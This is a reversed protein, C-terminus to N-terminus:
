TRRGSLNAYCHHSSLTFPRLVWANASSAPVKVTGPSFFTLALQLMCAAVSAPPDGLIRRVWAIRTGKTSPLGPGVYYELTFITAPLESGRLQIRM